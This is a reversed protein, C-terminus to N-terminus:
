LRKSEELCQTVEKILPHTSPYNVRFIEAARSYNTHAEISSLLKSELKGLNFYSIGIDPHNSNTQGLCKLRIKLAEKLKDAAASSDHQALYICGLLDLTSAKELQYKERVDLAQLAWLLAADYNQQNYYSSAMNHYCAGLGRQNGVAKYMERAAKYYILAKNRNGIEDYCVGLNNLFTPRCNNNSNSIRAIQNECYKIAFQYEGMDFLLKGFLVSHENSDIETAYSQEIYNNVSLQDHRSLSLHIVYLKNKEIFEVSEIRFVSGISILIEEEEKYRSFERIDAFVIGYENNMDVDIEFLVPEDNQEKRGFNFKNAVDRDQTTSVFSNLSIIGNICRSISLIQSLKLRQGRYLHLIRNSVSLKFEQHLDKLQRCLLKIMYRYSYITSINGSVLAENISLYIISNNTYWWVARQANEELSENAFEDIPILLRKDKCTNRCCAIMEEKANIDDDKLDIMFSSCKYFWLFRAQDEKLCHIPYQENPTDKLSSKLSSTDTNANDRDNFLSFGITVNDREMCHRIRDFLETTETCVARVKTYKLHQCYKVNPSFIFITFIGICDHIVPLIEESLSKSVIFIIYSKENRDDQRLIYDACEETDTFLKLKDDLEFWPLRNQKIGYNEINQDLWVLHHHYSQIDDGLSAAKESVVSRRATM